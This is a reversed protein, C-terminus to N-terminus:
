PKRRRARVDITVHPLHSVAPGRGPFRTAVPTYTLYYKFKRECTGTTTRHHPPPRQASLSWLSRVRVCVSRIAVSRTPPPHFFDRTGAAPTPSFRSDFRNWFLLIFFGVPVYRPRHPDILIDNLTGGRHARVLRIFFYKPPGRRVVM